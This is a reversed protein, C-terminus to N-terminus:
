WGHARMFELGKTATDDASPEIDRWIAAAAAIEPIGPVFSEIVAGADYDISRLASFVESWRVQGTGPAGRDNECLHMHKLRKGALRIADASSKEEISMHFTDLHMGLGPSAVEDVMRRADAAINIFYTEFRNLPEICLCMGHDHAFGAVERLGVVVRDWEEPTRGRGVLKGVPAYLPGCFLKAGLKEGLLVTARIYEKATEHPAADASTLDREPTMISCLSIELGTEDLAARVAPVDVGAPDFVAIEVMDFGMAAAKRVWQADDKNSASWLLFNVGYKM